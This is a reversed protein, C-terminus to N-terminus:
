NSTKLEIWKRSNATKGQYDTKRNIKAKKMTLKLLMRPLAQSEMWIWTTIFTIFLNILAPVCNELFIKVNKCLGPMWLSSCQGIQNFSPQSSFIGQHVAAVGWYFFLLYIFYFPFFFFFTHRPLYLHYTCQELCIYIYRGPGNTKM